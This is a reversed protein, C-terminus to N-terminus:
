CICFARFANKKVKNRSIGKMTRIIFSMLEDDNNVNFVLEKPKNKDSLNKM